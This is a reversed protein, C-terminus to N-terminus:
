TAASKLVEDFLVLSSKWASDMDLRARKFGEIEADSVEGYPSWTFHMCYKGAEQHLDVTALLYEPWGDIKVSNWHRDAVSQVWVLKEQPQVDRYVFKQYQSANDAWKMEILAQGGKEVQMHHMLTEVDPGYWSSFLQPESWLRWVDAVPATFFKEWVYEPRARM